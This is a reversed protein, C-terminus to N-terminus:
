GLGLDRRRLEASIQPWCNNAPPWRSVTPHGKGQRWGGPAMADEGGPSVTLVTELGVRHEWPVFAGLPSLHAEGRLGGGVPLCESEMNRQLVNNTACFICVTGLPQLCLPRLVPETLGLGSVLGRCPRHFKIM